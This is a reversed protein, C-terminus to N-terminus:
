EEEAATAAIARAVLPEYVVRRVWDAFGRVDEETKGSADDVMLVIPSGSRSLRTGYLRDYEKVLEPM